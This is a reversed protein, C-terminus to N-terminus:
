FVKLGNRIKQLYDKKSFFDNEEGVEDDGFVSEYDFQKWNFEKLLENSQNSFENKPFEIKKDNEFFLNEYWDIKENIACVVQSERFNPFFIWIKLYYDTQLKDLEIKWTKYIKTLGEIIKERFEDNPEPYPCKTSLLDSWLRVIWKSTMYNYQQLLEKNFFLNIQKWDEINKLIKNKGRIKKFKQKKM